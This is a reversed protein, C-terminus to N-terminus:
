LVGGWSDTRGQWRSRPLSNVAANGRNQKRMERGKRQRESGPRGRGETPADGKGAGRDGAERFPLSRTVRPFGPTAKM